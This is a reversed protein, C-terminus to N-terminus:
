VPRVVPDLALPDPCLDKFQEYLEETVIDLAVTLRGNQTDIAVGGISGDRVFDGLRRVIRDVEAESLVKPGEPPASCPVVNGTAVTEQKPAAQETVDIARGHWTGRLTAWGSRTGRVTEPSSLRDLDVGTVVVALTAPCAPVPTVMPKPTEGPLVPPVQLDSTTARPPCFVVAQAPAAIVQGTVEVRDGDRVVLDAATLTPRWPEGIPPTSTVEGCGAVVAGIVVSVALVRVRGRHM